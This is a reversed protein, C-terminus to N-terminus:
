FVLDLSLCLHSVSVESSRCIKPPSPGVAYMHREKCSFLNVFIISSFVLLQFQFDIGAHGTIKMERSVMLVTEVCLVTGRCLQPWLLPMKAQGLAADACGPNDGSCCCRVVWPTRLHLMCVCPPSWGEGAQQQLERCSPGGARREGAVRCSRHMQNKGMEHPPPNKMLM